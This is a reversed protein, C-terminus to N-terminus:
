LTRTSFPHPAGFSRSNLSLSRSCLVCYWPCPCNTFRNCWWMWLPTVRVLLSICATYLSDWCAPCVNLWFSKDTQQKCKRLERRKRRASPFSCTCNFRRLTCRHVSFICRQHRILIHEIESVMEIADKARRASTPGYFWCNCLYIKVLVSAFECFVWMYVCCMNM